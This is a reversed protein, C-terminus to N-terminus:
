QSILLYVYQMLFQTATANPDDQLHGRVPLPFIPRGNADVATSPNQIINIRPKNDGIDIAPRDVAVNDLLVLKPYRRIMVDRYNDVNMVPNGTLYLQELNRFRSRWGELAKLDSIENGELSLNKLDPFTISLSTVPTISKLHNQAVSVSHIMERKINGTPWKKEACVMLAPFVKMTTSGQSFFGNDRLIAEEGLRSLDLFKEEPRYRATLVQDLIAKTNATSGNKPTADQMSSDLMGDVADATIKLNVGAFKAGDWNLVQAIVAPPVYLIM